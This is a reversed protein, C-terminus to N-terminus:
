QGRVTADESGSRGTAAPEILTLRDLIARAREDWSHRAEAELQAADGLAAAHVRDRLLINIASALDTVDGPAVLRATRGDELVEEIQGLRSAVIPRGLGMYEFIKTPSGFFPRDRLPVHPSALIECGALRRLADDNSLSGTWEIRDSVGLGMALSQCSALEPGDGIMVVRAHPPLSGLARVLVEAGHWPGFSGVWGILGSRATGANERAARTREVDVGNPVIAVAERQAGVEYAMEAAESSVAVILSARRVVRREVAALLPDFVREVPLTAQWHERVWLETANWELVSPVKCREAVESGAALFASHRQYVFAPRLRRALAFGALRLKRNASIAEVDATVRASSPLPPIVELDDVARALQDPPEAMTLLGIRYGARRMGSLIGSMHTISGGARANSSGRWVALIAPESNRSAAKVSANTSAGRRLLSAIERGVQGIASVGDSGCRVLELALRPRNLRRIVADSDDFVSRMSVPALALAVYFFQPSIQRRWDRTHVAAATIGQNRIFKRLRLREETVNHTSLM